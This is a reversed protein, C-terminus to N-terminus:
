HSFAASRDSTLDFLTYRRDLRQGGDRTLPDWTMTASRRSSTSLLLDFPIRVYIGKDFSGEGFDARSVDTLTAFAGMSVGNRFRRSLDVTVGNDGALYRGVQIKAQIDELGTDVYATVHGTATHYDRFGFDQEFDRQQVANVDVGLAWRQGQPRYLWEVGVGGFMSELLGAYAMAYTNTGPQWTKTLQLNPLTVRSTTLYERIYTRVRPLRSPATYKFRDYNDLVRASAQASLWFDDRPKWEGTAELSFQYLLFTDPGGLSQRYGLGADGTFAQRPPTYLTDARVWAPASTQFLTTDEPEGDVRTDARTFAERQVSWDATRMGRNEAAVTFWDVDAPAQNHLIRAARDMSEAPERYREPEAEVILEHERQRIRRVALGANDHLAQATAAWDTERGAAPPEQLTVPAAALPRPLVQSRALNTHLTVGFMATNGREWGAHLDLSPSVRYVLGLNLPTDQKQNNSQPESQYDNGEYELKLLLPPLPTQYQVGGFLATRGRFYATTNFGGANAVASTPVPRQDFKGSILSFPNGFDGRAGLYGWGLGLSFDLNAVRKSAVVYEGSFLGTGGIDRMGVAVQPLLRSEKLLRLKAAISKDKYSQNGAIVPGYLRNSVDIYRFGAELWDFPQLMVNLRTYPEVHNLGVSVEGVESMRATPTQMLGTVGWDSASVPPGEARALASLLSLTLTLLSLVPRSM